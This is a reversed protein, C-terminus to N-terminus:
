LPRRCRRPGGPPQNGPHDKRDRERKARGATRGPDRQRGPRVGSDCARQRGTRERSRRPCCHGAAGDERRASEARDAEHNLTWANDSGSDLDYENSYKTDLLTRVANSSAVPTGEVRILTPKTPDPKYVQSYTLNARKLDQQIQAVLNDTEASVAEEVKVQLILHAGGRLDLGLHIRSSMGELLAKGSLGSPIGFIGYLCILLVAIILAIKNKLNKKM